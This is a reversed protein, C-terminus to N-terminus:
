RSRATRPTFGDRGGASPEHYSRRLIIGCLTEAVREDAPAALSRGLPQGFPKLRNCESQDPGGFSLTTLAAIVM